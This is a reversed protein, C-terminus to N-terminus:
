ARGPARQPRTERPQSAPFFLLPPLPACGATALAAAIIELPTWDARYYLIRRNVVSQIHLLVLALLPVLAACRVLRRFRAVSQDAPPYGESSTLLYVGGFLIIACTELGLSPLHALLPDGLITWAPLIADLLRLVSPWAACFLLSLLILWIGWALRRLWRPR